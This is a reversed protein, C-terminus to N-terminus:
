HNGVLPLWQFYPEDWLAFYNSVKGGALSFGGGAYLRDGNDILLASVFRDTGSGLNESNTGNWRALNFFSLSGLRDFQGGVILHGQSDIAMAMVANIQDRDSLDFYGLNRFEGDVMAWVSGYIGLYLTGQHYLLVSTCSPMFLYCNM